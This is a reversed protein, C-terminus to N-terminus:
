LWLGSMASGALTALGFWGTKDDATLLGNARVRARALSEQTLEPTTGALERLASEVRTASASTRDEMGLVDTTAIGRWTNMPMRALKMSAKCAQLIATPTLWRVSASTSTTPTIRCRSRTTTGRM